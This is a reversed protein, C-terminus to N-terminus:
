VTSFKTNKYNNKKIMFAKKNDVMSLLSDGGKGGGGRGGREDGGTREGGM